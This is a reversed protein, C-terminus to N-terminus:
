YAQTVKSHCQQTPANTRIHDTQTNNITTSEYYTLKLKYQVYPKLVNNISIYTKTQEDHLSGFCM